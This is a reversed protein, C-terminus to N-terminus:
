KTKADKEKKPRAKKETKILAEKENKKEIQAQEKNVAIQQKIRKFITPHKSMTTNIEAYSLNTAREIDKISKATKAAERIKKCDKEIEKATRKAM